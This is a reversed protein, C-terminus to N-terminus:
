PILLTSGTTGRGEIAEHAARAESLPFEAGIAIKVAGSGIVGFLAAASDDLDATTAVYDFLTPRTLFLSGGRSLRLPEIAPVPGSANGYSVLMGRRGLSGLSGELTAAGVGDYVVRVGAGDTLTKVQKAVDERDYLIIHDCGHDLAMQAKADSGATGIVLAGISRAWQALILGVGGAAAHILVADGAAVPFCRRILFEATMGKLMSAAATRGDIGAPLRVARGEPVVHAQSYAGLPGTAYGARDGVAFRTVGPGVAEVVGAGELGLISPFPIPYLGSRQYTDIFNLGVAEQRILIQGPGPTPEPREVASLVEPGGAREAQIALM